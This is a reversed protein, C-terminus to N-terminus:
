PRRVVHVAAGGPVHHELGDDSIRRARARAVSTTARSPLSSNATIRGSALSSSALNEGAVNAGQQALALEPRRNEDADPDRTMVPSSSTLASSTRARPWIASYSALSRPPSWAGDVAALGASGQGPHLPDAGCQGLVAEDQVALRDGVKAGAPDGMVLQEHAHEGLVPVDDRGGGEQGHRLPEPHDSLDVPPHGAGAQAQGDVALAHRHVQGAVRDAIGGDDGLDPGRDVVADVGALDDEVDGLRGRHALELGGTLEGAEEVAEAAAERQVVEPGAERREREQLVDRRPVQLDVHLKM